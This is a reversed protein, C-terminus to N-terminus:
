VCFEPYTKNLLEEAKQPLILFSIYLWLFFLTSFISFGLVFYFNTFLNDSLNYLSPLQSMLLLVSGGAQKFIIEELMWKKNSVEKRRKFQRKLQVSKVFSWICVIGYFAFIFYSFLSSTFAVYIMIFLAATKIAKPLTFWQKLETWLFKLYRKHMAKQRQEVANMFGFVGFKEFAKDRANEYPLDPNNEWISEIDNALHDVLETQLDYHEVFHKRTFQYLNELQEKDVKRSYSMNEKNSTKM